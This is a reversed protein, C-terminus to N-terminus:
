RHVKIRIGGEIEQTICSGYKGMTSKVACRRYMVPVATMVRQLNGQTNYPDGVAEFIKGNWKFSLNKARYQQIGKWHVQITDGNVTHTMGEFMTRLSTLATELTAKDVLEVTTHLVSMRSM